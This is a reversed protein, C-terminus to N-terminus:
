LLSWILSKIQAIVETQPQSADIVQAPTSHWDVQWVETSRKRVGVVDEDKRRQVAIDPNLKLVIFLEPPVVARYYNTEQKTLWRTLWNHEEEKVLYPNQPGDMVMTEPLAFRDCLVIGGSNAFRRAQIYTRYRDRATCLHQLLRAYSVSETKVQASRRLVVANLLRIVKLTARLTTTTWSWSPKGMHVKLTDFEQSLWNDLQEIATSKGAGDGGVLAIMVGGNSLRKKALRPLLRRQTSRVLRRWNKLWVDGGHSRRTHAQLNKQLKHGVQLRLWLKSGPQLAEVCDAFLESGIYPLYQELHANLKNLSILPELYELEGRASKPLNGQRTLIADWTSYKLIMRIVLVLYEWEPTPLPFLDDKNSSALFPEEIPLHYNKTRDHGLVLQYHAHVHVLKGSQQDYGYYHLVGPVQAVSRTQAQKFGWHSLIETYRQVQARHILLDLDNDGSASRAIAANSKWHCYEVGATDLAQCLQRILSLTLDTKVAIIKSM